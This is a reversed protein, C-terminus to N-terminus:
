IGLFFSPANRTTQWTGPETSTMKLQDTTLIVLSSGSPYSCHAILWCIPQSGVVRAMGVHKAKMSRSATSSYVHLEEDVTSGRELLTWSAVVGSCNFHQSGLLQGSPGWGESLM